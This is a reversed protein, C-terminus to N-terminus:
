PNMSMTSNTEPRWATQITLKKGDDSVTTIDLALPSEFDIGTLPSQIAQEIGNVAIREITVGTSPQRFSLEGTGNNTYYNQQMGTVIVNSKQQLAVASGITEKNDNGNILFGMGLVVVLSLLSLSAMIEILTFGSQNHFKLPIKM